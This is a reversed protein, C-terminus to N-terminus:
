VGSLPIPLPLQFPEPAPLEALAFGLIDEKDLGRAPLTKITEGQQTRFRFSRTEPEFQASITQGAFQAGVTYDHGLVSVRGNQSYFRRTDDLTRQLHELDSFSQGKWAMDSLTRHERKVAGQDTPRAPRSTLHTIGLGALWLTFLSPYNEDSSGVYVTEHDTQIEDPLGWEAFAQRLAQQTEQLTIKRWRKETTTLFAKSGIMLGMPDRLNLLNVKEGPVVSLGEQADMQWRQHPRSVKQPAQEPYARKRRVQVAEPCREKFLVALRAASPLGVVSKGLADALRLRVTKAGWRCHEQKLRVAMEVLERPYSSLTGQGPRGRPRVSQQKVTYQSCNLEEAIEQLTAGEEKRQAIREQEAATLPRRHTSM